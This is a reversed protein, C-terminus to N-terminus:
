MDRIRQLTFKSAFRVCPRRLLVGHNHASTAHDPPMDAPHSSKTPCHLLLPSPQPHKSVKTKQRPSKSSPTTHKTSPTAVPARARTSHTPGHTHQFHPPYQYPPLRATLKSPIPNSTSIQYHITRKAAFIPASSVTRAAYRARRSAAAHNLDNQNQDSRGWDKVSRNHRRTM